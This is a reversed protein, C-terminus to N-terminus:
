LVNYTDNYTDRFQVSSYESIAMHLGRAIVDAMKMVVSLRTSQLVLFDMFGGTNVVGTIHMDGVAPLEKKLGAGPKIPGCGVSICGVHDLTGLSADVAILYADPHITLAKLLTEELNRAHVPSDLTGYVHVGNMKYKVLMDGVLPGLSDGTSRDTGICMTVISRQRIMNTKKFGSIEMTESIAKAVKYVALKDDAKFYGKKDLLVCDKRKGM